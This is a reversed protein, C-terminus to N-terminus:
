PTVTLESEVRTIGPASEAANRAAVAEQWSRVSGHLVVTGDRSEVWVRRADFQAQRHLAESIRRYVERSTRSPRVSICNVVGRVGRLNRAIREAEERRYHWDVVGELTVLGGRVTARVAGPAIMASWDLATALARAVDTDDRVESPGLRVELEDAVATVGYVRWAAKVATAREAV